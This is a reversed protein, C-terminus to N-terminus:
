SLKNKLYPLVYEFPMDPLIGPYYIIMENSHQQMWGSYPMYNQFKGHTGIFILSNKELANAFHAFSSDIGVFLNCHNILIGMESLEKKGTHDFIRESTITIKKESGIEIIDSTSEELLFMAIKNWCDASLSKFALNATSHIIIYNKIAPPSRTKHVHLTPTINDPMEIGASRSFCYLLNGKEFYNELTINFPDAKRNLFHHKSCVKDNIHLDVVNKKNCFYKLLIWETFCTISLTKNIIPNSKTIHSYNKNIVWAIYNKGPREKLYRAVPEAAVTDGLHETLSIVLLKRGSLRMKMRLFFVRWANGFLSFAM